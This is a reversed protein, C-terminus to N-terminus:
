PPPLFNTPNQTHKSAPATLLQQHIPRPNHFHSALATHSRLHKALPGPLISCDPRSPCMKCPSILWKTQTISCHPGMLCGPPPTSCAIPYNLGPHLLSTPVPFPPRSTTLVHIFCALGHPQQPRSFYPLSSSSGQPQPAGVSPARPVLLFPWRHPLVM